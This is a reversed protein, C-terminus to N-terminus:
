PDDLELVHLVRLLLDLDIRAADLPVVQRRQALEPLQVAALAGLRVDVVHRHVGAHTKILRQHLIQQLPLLPELRGQDKTGQGKNSTLPCPVLLSWLCLVGMVKTYGKRSPPRISTPMGTSSCRMMCCFGFRSNNGATRKRSCFRRVLWR